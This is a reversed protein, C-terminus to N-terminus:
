GATTDAVDDGTNGRAGTGPPFKPVGIGLSRLRRSDQAIASPTVMSVDSTRGSSL